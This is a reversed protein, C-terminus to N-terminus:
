PIYNLPLFLSGSDLPKGCCKSYFGFAKKGWFARHPSGERGMGPEDEASTGWAAAM